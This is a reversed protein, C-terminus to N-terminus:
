VNKFEGVDDEVGGAVVVAGGATAGTNVRPLTKRCVANRDGPEAQEHNSRICTRRTEGRKCSWKETNRVDM